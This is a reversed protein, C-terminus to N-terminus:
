KASPRATSRVLAASPANVITAAAVIERAVDVLRRQHSRAHMRLHEFAQEYNLHHREMLMGVVASVHQREVINEAMKRQNEASARIEKGRARLMKVTPLVNQPDIPKHLFAMVGNEAAERMVAEDALGTLMLCPIHMSRGLVQAVEAGTLMSMRYDLIAVDVPRQQALQIAEEGSAAESVEFGAGRLARGLTTRVLVDDDALLVHDTM